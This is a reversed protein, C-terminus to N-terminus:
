MSGVSRRGMLGEDDEDDAEDDDDGGRAESRGDCGAVM